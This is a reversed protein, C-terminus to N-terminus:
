TLHVKQTSRANLNEKVRALSGAGVDVEKTTNVELKLSKRHKCNNCLKDPYEALDKLVYTITRKGRIKCARCSQSFSLKTLSTWRWILSIEKSRWRQQAKVPIALNKTAACRTRTAQGNIKLKWQEDQKQCHRCQNFTWFSRKSCGPCVCQKTGNVVARHYM